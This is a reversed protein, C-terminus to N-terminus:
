SRVCCEPNCLVAAEEVQRPYRTVSAVQISELALQRRRPPQPLQVALRRFLALLLDHLQLADDLLEALVDLHPLSLLQFLVFLVV